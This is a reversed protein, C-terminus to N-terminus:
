NSQGEPTNAEDVESTVDLKLYLYKGIETEQTQNDLWVKVLITEKGDVALTGSYLDFMNGDDSSVTLTSLTVPAVIQEEGIFAAVRVNDLSVHEANAPAEDEFKETDKGIKIRYNAPLSGTNEIAVSSTTNSAEIADEDSMPYLSIDTIKKSESGYTVSLKGTKVVQNETNTNVQFFLAYSTGALLLVSCIVCIAIIITHKKLTSSYNMDNVM